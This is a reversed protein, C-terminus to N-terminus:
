EIVGVVWFYPVSAKLGLGSSVLTNDATPGFTITEANASHIVRAYRGTGNDSTTTDTLQHNASTKGYSTASAASYVAFVKGPKDLPTIAMVTNYAKSSYSTEMCFAAFNPTKGLGHNVTYNTVNASPTFTGHSVASGGGGGAEIAAILSALADSTSGSPVSVGKEAIAALAASVNGSIRTIESQVSM